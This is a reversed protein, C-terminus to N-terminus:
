SQKEVKQILYPLVTKIQVKDISGDESKVEYKFEIGDGNPNVETVNEYALSNNPGTFVFLFPFLYVTIM